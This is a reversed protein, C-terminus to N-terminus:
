GRDREAALDLELLPAGKVQRIFGDSADRWRAATIITANVDRGLRETLGRTAAAVGRRSPAGVVLVDVDNPADGTEGLYRAAWSGFVFAKEIGDIGALAPAIVVAPGFAKLLLALLDPYYVSDIDPELLRQNGIRRSRVLGARELRDAERTLNGSDLDLERALQAVPAPHDPALYVRALLRGQGDSRFLPLLHPSASRM